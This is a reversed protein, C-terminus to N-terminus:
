ESVFEFTALAVGNYTENSEMWDALSAINNTNKIESVNLEPKIYNKM